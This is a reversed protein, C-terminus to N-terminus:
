LSLEVQRPGVARGQVVKGTGPRVRVPQGDLGPTEAVGETSVAYGDGVAVVRVTEGGQFWIRSRLDADRLAEGAAVARVLQRGALRDPAVPPQAVATYEVEALTMQARQLVTGAPLALAAVPAPGHIRVTVPLWTRWAVPGGVCQLTIRSRGWLRGGPPLSPQINPCAALKLRPDLQGVEVEVRLGPAGGAAARAMAQLQAALPALPLDVPVVAQAWIPGAWVLVVLTVLSALPRAHWRGPM